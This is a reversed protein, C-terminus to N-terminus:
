GKPAADSKPARQRTRKRPSSQRKAHRGITEEFTEQVDRVATKQSVGRIRQWIYQVPLIFLAALAHPNDVTLITAADDDDFLLCLAEKLEPTNLDIHSRSHACANRMSKLVELIDADDDDLIGLAVALNTRHAWNSLVGGGRLMNKKREETLTLKALIADLLIDETISGVIVITGRHSESSLTDATVEIDDLGGRKQYHSLAELVKARKKKPTM